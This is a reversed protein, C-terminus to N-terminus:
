DGSNLPEWKVIQHFKNSLEKVRNNSCGEEAIEDMVKKSISRKALVLKEMAQNKNLTPKMERIAALASVSVIQYNVLFKTMEQESPKLCVEAVANVRTVDEFIRLIEPTNDRKFWAISLLVFVLILLIRM